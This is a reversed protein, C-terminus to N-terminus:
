DEHKYDTRRYYKECDECIRKVSYKGDREFTYRKSYAGVPQEKKCENCNYAVRAIVEKKTKLNWGM